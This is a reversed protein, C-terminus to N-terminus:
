SNAEGAEVPFEHRFQIFGSREAVRHYLRMAASNTEHALWYVRACHRRAAEAYVREILKRGVGEGRASEIVFLDQLYCYDGATWSSRHLVFHVLGVADGGIWALAGFIPEAPDLFRSWVVSSVADSVAVRHFAQYARWLLSWRGLDPARVERIECSDM